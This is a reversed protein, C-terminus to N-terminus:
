EAAPTPSSVLAENMPKVDCSDIERHINAAHDDIIDYLVKAKTFKVAVIEGWYTPCAAWSENPPLPSFEVEDGIQMKSPLLM